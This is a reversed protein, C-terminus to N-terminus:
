RAPSTRLPAIHDVRLLAAGAVVLAAGASPFAVAEDPVPFAEAALIAFGAAAAAIGTVARVLGALGTRAPTAHTSAREAWRFALLFPVLCIACAVIWAPRLWWWAASLPEPQPAIGTPFLIVAALVVASMNWLYFTMVMSNAIVVGLWPRPRALWRNAADELLLMAGCQWVALALLAGSPPLTNSRIGHTLGIMSVPYDFWGVLVGLAILGGGAMAWPLWRRRRLAGEGWFFGLEIVALWVFAYNAIGIFPVDLGFRLSDVLLAGIALTALAWAGFRRHVALLPPIACIALLYVALFWLPLAVEGGGTRAISSPLLGAAVAIVPLITWFGVFWLAPRLLRASRAQLWGAYSTGRAQASNWSIANTFGGVIFFLPMVQFIWTLIQLGPDIELLNEGTFTGDRYGLVAMLWHGLVVVGISAVRILDVYRNRTDPTASALERADLRDPAAGRPGEM